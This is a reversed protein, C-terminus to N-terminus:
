KVVNTPKGDLWHRINDFVIEARKYLSEQTAYAIHPTLIINPVHLLPHDAPLPPESDFVDVAAGAIVDDSLAQALAQTDVVGGRATNILIAEKKMRNLFAEDIVGQTGKTLPLHVSVIDSEAALEELSVYRIGLAEGAPRVSRNYGLLKCGFAGALKAVELGIAGTGVIGLTKGSLENGVLGGITGGSRTEKELTIIYRYLDIILGIVLEAVAQTAYGAANCILVDKERAAAVDVHDVGTFAIDLMKLKECNEIVSRGLPQNALVVVDADRVRESLEADTKARKDYAIVEHGNAKLLLSLTKLADPTIGLSEIIVIRM